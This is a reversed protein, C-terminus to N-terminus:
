YANYYANLEDFFNNRDTTTLVPTTWILGLKGSGYVSSTNIRAGIALNNLTGATNAYNLWNGSNGGLWMTFSNTKNIWGDNLTGNSQFAFIYTTNASLATPIGLGNNLTGNNLIIRFVDSSDKYIMFKANNTANDSASFIPEFVGLITTHFVCWIMGSTVGAGFNATNKLLYNPDSSVFNLSPHNNFGADIATYDPQNAAAPNAPNIGSGGREIATTTTGTIDLSESDWGYTAGVSTFLEALVDTSGGSSRRIALPSIKIPSLLM